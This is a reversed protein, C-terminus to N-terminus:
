LEWFVAFSPNISIYASLILELVVRYFTVDWRLSRGEVVLQRAVVGDSEDRSSYDEEQIWMSVM